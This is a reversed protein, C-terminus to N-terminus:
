CRPISTPGVRTTGGVEKDEASPPPPRRTLWDREAPRLDKGPFVPAVPSSGAVEPTVPRHTSSRCLRSGVPIVSLAGAPVKRDRIPEFRFRSALRPGRLACPQATGATGPSRAFRCFLPLLGAPSRCGPPQPPPANPSDRLSSDGMPPLAVTSLAGNSAVSRAATTEHPDTVPGPDAAKVPQWGSPVVVRIGHASIIRGTSGATAISACVFAAVLTSTVRMM